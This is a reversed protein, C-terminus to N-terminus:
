GVNERARRQTARLQRVCQLTGERLLAQLVWSYKTDLLLEPYGCKM